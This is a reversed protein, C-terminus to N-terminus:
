SIRSPLSFPVGDSEGWKESSALHVNGFQNSPLLVHGWGDGGRVQVCDLGGEKGNAKRVMHYEIM